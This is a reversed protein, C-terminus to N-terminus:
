KLDVEEVTGTLLNIADVLFEEKLYIMYRGFNKQANQIYIDLSCDVDKKILETIRGNQRFSNALRIAKRQMEGDYLIIYNSSECKIEIKQRTLANYLEDVVVAFGIAPTDYGFHKLLGDYRGGKVIETGTGYTYARFIIGTYYEYVGSMSLDFTVHPLVGYMELVNAIAELREISEIAERNPAIEKAKAFIEIGGNLKPLLKFANVIKEDIDLKILVDQVAFYNKNECLERVLEETHIDLGASALLSNFYTAHGVTVQFEELTASKLVDVVMAIMESDAEVSDLGVLEAGLQTNEKLRGQYSNHNIFTNGIYCFKGVPANEHMVTSFARAISPTFDPRLVLTNGDRDFFRYLENSELSGLEKSFVESYELTPTQIDQYGFSKLTNHLRNQLVLKQRCEIPYIDRVGEPTHLIRQNM